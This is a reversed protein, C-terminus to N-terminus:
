PSRRGAKHTTPKATRWRGTKRMGIAGWDGRQSGDETACLSHATSYARVASYQSRRSSEVRSPRWHVSAARSNRQYTLLAPNCSVTDNNQAAGWQSARAGLVGLSLEGPQARGTYTGGSWGSIILPYRTDVLQM